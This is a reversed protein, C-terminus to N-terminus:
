LFESGFAPCFLYVGCDPILPEVDEQEELIIAFQCTACLASGLFRLTYQRLLITYVTSWSASVLRLLLWPVSM